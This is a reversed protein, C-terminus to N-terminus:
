RSPRSKRAFPRFSHSSLRNRAWARPRTFGFLNYKEAQDGVTQDGFNQFGCHMYKESHNQIMMRTKM